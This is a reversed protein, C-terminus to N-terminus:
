IRDHRGVKYSDARAQEEALRRVKEDTLDAAVNPRRGKGSRTRCRGYREEWETSYSVWADTRMAAQPSCDLAEALEELTVKEERNGHDALYEEVALNREAPSRDDKAARSGSKAKKQEEESLEGFAKFASGTPFWTGWARQFEQELQLKLRERDSESWGLTIPLISENGVTDGYTFLVASDAIGLDISPDDGAHYRFAAEFRGLVGLIEPLFLRGVGIAAHHWSPATGVRDWQYDPDDLHIRDLPGGILPGGCPVTISVGGSNVGAFYHGFEQLDRALEDCEAQVGEAISQWGAVTNRIGDVTFDRDRSEEFELGSERLNQIGDLVGVTASLFPLVLDVPAKDLIASSLM